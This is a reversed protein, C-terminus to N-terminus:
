FDPAEVLALREQRIRKARDSKAKYTNLNRWATPNKYVKIGEEIALHMDNMDEESMTKRGNSIISVLNYEPGQRDFISITMEGWKDRRVLDVRIAPSSHPEVTITGQWRDELDEPTMALVRILAEDSNQIELAAAKGKEDQWNVIAM